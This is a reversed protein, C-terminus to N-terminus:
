RAGLPLVDFSLRAVQETYNGKAALTERIMNAIRAHRAADLARDAAMTAVSTMALTNARSTPATTHLLSSLTLTKM